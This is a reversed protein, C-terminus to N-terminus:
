PSQVAKAPEGRLTRTSAFAEALQRSDFYRFDWNRGYPVARPEDYCVIFPRELPASQVLRLSVM